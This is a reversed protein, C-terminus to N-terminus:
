AAKAHDDNQPNATGRVIPISVPAEIGIKNGPLRHVVVNDGIKVSEGPKVALVLM